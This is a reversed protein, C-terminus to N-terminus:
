SALQQVQFAAGCKDDSDFFLVVNKDAARKTSPIIIGDGGIRRLEAALLQSTVPVKQHSWIADLPANLLRQELVPDSYHRLVKQMDWLVFSRNPTLQYQQPAGFPPNPKQMVVSLRQHRMCAAKRSSIRSIHHCKLWGQM